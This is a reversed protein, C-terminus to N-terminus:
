ESTRARVPLGEKASARLPEAAGGGL